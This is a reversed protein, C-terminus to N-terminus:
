WSDLHEKLSELAVGLYEWFSIVDSRDYGELDGIVDDLDVKDIADFRGLTVLDKARQIPFAPESFVSSVETEFDEVDMLVDELTDIMEVTREGTDSEKWADKRNDWDDRMREVEEDITEKLSAILDAAKSVESQANTMEDGYDVWADNLDDLNAGSPALKYKDWAAELDDRLESLRGGGVGGSGEILGDFGPDDKTTVSLSRLVQKLNRTPRIILRTM